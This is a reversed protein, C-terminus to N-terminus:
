SADESRFYLIYFVVNLIELYEAGYGVVDYLLKPFYAFLKGEGGVEIFYEYVVKDLKL